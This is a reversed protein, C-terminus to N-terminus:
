YFAGPWYARLQVIEGGNCLCIYAHCSALRCRHTWTESRYLLSSLVCAQYIRLKTNETLKSNNWVRSNLKAMTGAAKGIRSNLESDLNVTIVPPVDSDQAMVKTKKLSITLGFEEICAHAFRDVLRQLHAVSHFVLAVDDAFLLERILIRRVKTKARLRAINFLKGDTRTHLYVGEDCDNFAYQLLLSFFIGFLTPALVCGQKVGSSIPFAESTTGKFSAINHTDKHFATIINLFRPPCRIRKLIELLGRRSVLDFAKTLDISTIYLPM